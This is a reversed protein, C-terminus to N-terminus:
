GMIYVCSISIQFFKTSVQFPGCAKFAIKHFSITNAVTGVFEGEVAM